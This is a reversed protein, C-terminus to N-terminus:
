DFFAAEAFADTGSADPPPPVEGRLHPGRVAASAGSSGENAEDGTPSSADEDGGEVEFDWDFDWDCYDGEFYGSDEEPYPWGKGYPFPGENEWLCSFSAAFWQLYRYFSPQLNIIVCFFGFVLIGVLGVAAVLLLHSLLLRTDSFSSTDLLM